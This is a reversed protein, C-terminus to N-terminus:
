GNAYSTCSWHCSWVSSNDTLLTVEGLNDDVTALVASIMSLRVVVTSSTVLPPVFIVVLSSCSDTRM